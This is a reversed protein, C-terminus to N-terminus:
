EGGLGSSGLGSIEHGVIGLLEARFEGKLRYDDDLYQRWASAFGLLDPSIVVVVRQTGSAPYTATTNMVVNNQFAVTYAKDGGKFRGILTNRYAWIKNDPVVHKSGAAQNYNFVFSKESGVAHVLNYAAEIFM